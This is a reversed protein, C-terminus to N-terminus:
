MRIGAGTNKLRELKMRMGTVQIQSYFLHGIKRLVSLISSSGCSTNSSADCLLLGSDVM